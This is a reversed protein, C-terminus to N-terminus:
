PRIKKASWSTHLPGDCHGWRGKFSAFSSDFTFSLRGWYKTGYKETDCATRSVSETWVGNLRRNSLQGYIRGSRTTYSAQVFGQSVNPFTLIESSEDDKWSGGISAAPSTIQKGPSVPKPTTTDFAGGGQKQAAQGSGLQLATFVTVVAVAIMPKMM